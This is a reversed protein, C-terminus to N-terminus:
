RARTSPTRLSGTCATAVSYRTSPRPACDLGAAIPIPGLKHKWRLHVIKRVLPAPRQQLLRHPRSSRDAVGQAYRTARRKANPWSVFVEPPSPHIGM